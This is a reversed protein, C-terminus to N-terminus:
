WLKQKRTVCRCPVYHKYASNWGTYGTGCCKNCNQTAMKLLNDKQKKREVDLELDYEKNKLKNM